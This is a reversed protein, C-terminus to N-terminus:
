VARLITTWNAWGVYRIRRQYESTGSFVNMIM